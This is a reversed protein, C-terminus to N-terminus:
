GALGDAVSEVAAAVALDVVRDVGDGDGAGLVLGFRAGVEVAADAVSLGLAFGHACEFAV